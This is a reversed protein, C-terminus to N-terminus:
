QPLTAATSAGQCDLRQVFSQISARECLDLKRRLNAVHVKLTNETMGLSEAYEQRSALKANHGDLSPELYYVLLVQIERWTLRYDRRLSVMLRASCTAELAQSVTVRVSTNGCTAKLDSLVASIDGEGGFAGLVADLLSRHMSSPLEALRHLIQVADPGLRYLVPWISAAGDGDLLLSVCLDAVMRPEWWPLVATNREVVSRLAEHMLSREAPEGAEILAKALHLDVAALHWRYGNRAFFARADRLLPVAHGAPGCHRLAVAHVVRACERILAHESGQQENWALESLRLADHPRGSRLCVFARGMWGLPGAREYAQAAEDLRDLRVLADGRLWQIRNLWFADGSLLPEAREIRQLADHPDGILLMIEATHGLRSGTSHAAIGDAEGLLDAEGVSRRAEHMHGQAAFALGEALLITLRQADNYPTAPLIALNARAAKATTLGAAVQGAAVQNSALRVLIEARITPESPRTLAEELRAVAAHHASRRFDVAAMECTVWALGQHDAISGFMAAATDLAECAVELRFQRRLVRGRLALLWPRRWIVAPPLESLFRIIAHQAETDLLEIGVRELTNAAAEYSDGQLYHGLAAQWAGRAEMIRGAAELWASQEPRTLTRNRRERLFDRFLRHYRFHGQWAGSVGAEHMFLGQADLATLRVRADTTTLLHDCADPYLEDFVSTYLLFRQVDPSLGQFVEEALSDYLAAVQGSFSGLHSLIPAVPSSKLVRAALAVGAPWGETREFLLQSDTATIDVDAVTTLFTSIEDPTFELDASGFEVLDDDRRFEGLPLGPVSRSAVVFHVDPPSFRLIYSLLATVEPSAGVLEFSDLVIMLSEAPLTSLAHGVLAALRQNADPSRQLRPMARQADHGFDPVFQRIAAVLYSVFQSVDQDTEDLRYWAV